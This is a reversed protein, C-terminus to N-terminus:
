RQVEDFSERSRRVIVGHEVRWYCSAEYVRGHFSWPRITRVILRPQGRAFRLLAAKTRFRRPEDTCCWAEYRDRVLRLKRKRSVREAEM